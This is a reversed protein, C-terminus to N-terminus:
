RLAKSLAPQHQNGKLFMEQIVDDVRLFTKTTENIVTCDLSTANTNIVTIARFGSEDSQPQQNAISGVAKAPLYYAIGGARVTFGTTRVVAQGVTSDFYCLLLITFFPKYSFRM